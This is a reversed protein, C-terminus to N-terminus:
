MIDSVFLNLPFPKIFLELEKRNKSVHVRACNLYAVRADIIESMCHKQPKTLKGKVIQLAIRLCYKRLHLLCKM